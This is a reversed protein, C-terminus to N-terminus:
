AAPRDGSPSGGRVFFMANRVVWPCGKTGRQAAVQWKETWAPEYSFGRRALHEIWYERPQPNVHHTGGRQEPPAATLLLREGCTVWDLFNDVCDPAVHEAVEVSACFEFDAMQPIPRELAIDHVHVFRRIAWPITAIAGASAEVGICHVKEMLRSLIFASGCGVDALAEPKFVDWIADAFAYYARAYGMRTRFFELPYIKSIDESM